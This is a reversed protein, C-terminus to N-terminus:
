PRAGQLWDLLPDQRVDDLLVYEEGSSSGRTGARLPRVVVGLLNASPLWGFARSDYGGNDGLVVLSGAPVPGTRPVDEPVPDGPVAAVRKVMWRRPERGDGPVAGQRPPPTFVVVDGVGVRDPRRRRVLVVDGDRFTPLMSGGVVTVVTWTRRLALVGAAAVTLVGALLVM